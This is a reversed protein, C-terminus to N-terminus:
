RCQRLATRDSESIDGLQARANIEQCSSTSKQRTPTTTGRADLAVAPLRATEVALRQEARERDSQTKALREAMARELSARQEALRAKNAELAAVENALRNREGADPEPPPAAPSQAPAISSLRKEEDARRLEDRRRLQALEESAKRFGAEAQELDLRLQREKETYENVLRERENANEITDIQARAADVLSSSPFKAIFAKLTVVSASSLPGMKKWAILDSEQPNLYFDGLLSVSLEPTQQGRTDRNVSVAVRRFLAGVEIGPEQMERVLATTFPSNRGTGDAAVANPQTAYAILMGQTREIRALGRTMEGGRTGSRQAVAKAFPNTRCADLVLLRTGATYGLADIVDELKLLEFTVISDPDVQADVPVLYNQGDIQLGHGSYYFLAAETGKLKQAFRALVSRMGRSDLDRGDVVEFGLRRLQDSIDDADNRSNRLLPANAYAANGIVLAVRGQARAESVPLLSLCISCAIFFCLTCVVKM